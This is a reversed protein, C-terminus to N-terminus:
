ASGTGIRVGRMDRHDFAYTLSSRVEVVGAVQRSLREVIDASSRRDIKGSLTVVGDVVAVSVTSGDDALYSDLVASDIDALIEDDPRLHTKLLDGRSVIGILRGLDDTVPLRKVDDRDMLRAAAAISKTNLAVVAPSTMLDGVTRAFAKRREGRRRRGEFLRPEEDGAYEIKRLLDAESVVGVVHNVSDVVPVASFRHGVLLDVVDRYSAARDVSVVAKTMVDDVTWSKMAAEELM